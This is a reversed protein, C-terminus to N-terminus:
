IIQYLVTETKTESDFTYIPNFASNIGTDITFVYVYGSSKVVQISYLTGGSQGTGTQVNTVTGLTGSFISALTTNVSKSSGSAVPTIVKSSLNSSTYSSTNNCTYITGLSLGAISVNQSGCNTSPYVRVIRYETRSTTGSYYSGETTSAYWSAVAAMATSSTSTLTGTTYTSTSNSTGSGVTDKGCATLILLGALMARKM